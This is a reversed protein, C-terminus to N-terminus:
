AAADEAELQFQEICYNISYPQLKGQTHPVEVRDLSTGRALCRTVHLFRAQYSHSPFSPREGKGRRYAMWSKYAEKAAKWDFNSFDFNDQDFRAYDEKSYM